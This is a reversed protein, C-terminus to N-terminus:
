SSTSPGPSTQGGGKKELFYFRESRYTDTKEWFSVSESGHRCRKPKGKTEGLSTKPSGVGLRLAGPWLGAEVKALRPLALKRQTLIFGRFLGDSTRGVVLVALTEQLGNVLTGNKLWTKPHRCSRSVFQHNPWQKRTRVVEVAFRSFWRAIKYNKPTEKNSM